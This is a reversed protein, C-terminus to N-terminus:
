CGFVKRFPRTEGRCIPCRNGCATGCDECCAFHGCLFVVDRMRDKCVICEVTAQLTEHAAELCRTLDAIERNADERRGEHMKLEREANECRDQSMKLNCKADKHEKQLTRFDMQLSQRQQDTIKSKKKLESNATSLSAIQSHLKKQEDMLKQLQASLADLPSTCSDSEKKLRVIDSVERVLPASWSEPMEIASVNSGFTDGIAEAKALKELNQNFVWKRGPIGDFKILADGAADYGNEIQKILGKQGQKLPVTGRGDQGDDSEFDKTVEVM